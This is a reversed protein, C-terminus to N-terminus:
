GRSEKLAAFHERIKRIQEHATTRPIKLRRAAETVSCTKLLECLLRQEDSLERMVSAIDQGLEALQQDSPRCRGVRADLEKQSITESLEQAEERPDIAANLSRVRYPNRKAAMRHRMMKAAARRIITTTFGRWNGKKPDFEKASQLFRLLLEQELEEADSEQLAARGVM